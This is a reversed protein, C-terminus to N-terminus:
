LAAAVAVLALALFALNRVVHYAGLPRKSKSGFCACPPRSGDRIRRVIVVTFVLLMGVAVVAPWPQFLQAVLLVGVVIEVYPVVVAVSRSVEMDAAQKLWAPGEVLKLVGAAVFILGLAVSAVIAVVDV